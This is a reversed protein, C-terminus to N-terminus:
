KKITKRNEDISCYTLIIYTFFMHSINYINIQTMNVLLYVLIIVCIYFNNPQKFLAGVNRIKKYLYSVMRWFIPFFIAFGIIGTCALIELYSNHAYLKQITYYRNNDIGVGLIPHETFVRFSDIILSGRNDESGEIDDMRRIFTDAAELFSELYHLYVYVILGVVVCFLTIRYIKKTSGGTFILYGIYSSLVGLSGLVSKRSGTQVLIYLVFLTIVISVITKVITTNDYNIAFVICWLGYMLMVGLTNANFDEDFSLRTGILLEPHSIFYASAIIAGIAYFGIIIRLYKKDISLNFIIIGLIFSEILFLAQNIVKGDDKAILLGTILAYVIFVFLCKFENTLAKRGCFISLFGSLMLVLISLRPVFYGMPVLFVNYMIYFGILCCAITRYLINSKTLTRM